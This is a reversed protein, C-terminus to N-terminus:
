KFPNVCRGDHRQAVGAVRADDAVDLRQGAALQARRQGAALQARRQGLQSQRLDDHQHAANGPLVRDQVTAAPDLAGRMREFYAAPRALIIPGACNAAIFGPLWRSLADRPVNTSM